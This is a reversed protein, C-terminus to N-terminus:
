TFLDKKLIVMKPVSGDHYGEFVVEIEDENPVFVELKDLRVSEFRGNRRVIGYDWEEFTTVSIMTGVRREGEVEWQVRQEKM